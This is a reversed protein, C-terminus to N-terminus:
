NYGVARHYFHSVPPAALWRPHSEKSPILYWSVSTHVECGLRCSVLRSSTSRSRFLTQSRSSSNDSCKIKEMQAWLVGQVGASYWDRRHMTPYGWWGARPALTPAVHDSAFPFNERLQSNAERPFTPTHQYIYISEKKRNGACPTHFHSLELITLLYPMSEWDGRTVGWHLTLNLNNGLSEKGGQVDYVAHRQRIQSNLSRKRMHELRQRLM